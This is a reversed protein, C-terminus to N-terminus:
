GGTFCFRETSGRLGRFVRLGPVMVENSALRERAKELPEMM